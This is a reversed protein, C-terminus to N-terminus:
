DLVSERYLEVAASGPLVILSSSYIKIKTFELQLKRFVKGFKKNSCTFNSKETSYLGM